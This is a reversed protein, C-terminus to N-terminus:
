VYTTNRTVSWTLTHTSIRDNRHTQVYCGTVSWTLTHTSIIIIRIRQIITITVSWTLTHTSIKCLMSLLYRM